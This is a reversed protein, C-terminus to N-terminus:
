NHQIFSWCHLRKTHSSWCNLINYLVEATFGKWIPVQVVVLYTTYFKLLSAHERPFKFLLQTHQIFSWFHPRKIHSSSCFNFMNYLVEATSGKRIPVQVILNHQIFSWCHLRKTYSTSCNKCLVEATFFKRIQAILYLNHFNLLLIMKTHFKLLVYIQIFCWCHPKKNNSNDKQLFIKLHSKLLSASDYLVENTFGKQIFNSCNLIKTIITLLLSKEHSKTLLSKEYSEKVTLIKWTVRRYHPNKMHSKLLSPKEHSEEVTLITWTVRWWHPNKMHSKSLSYKEHSEEITLIKWTVKVSLTKWTIRWCNKEERKWTVRECHLNKM